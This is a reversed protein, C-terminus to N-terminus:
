VYIALRIIGIKVQRPICIEEDFNKKTTQFVIYHVFVVRIIKMAWTMLVDCTADYMM